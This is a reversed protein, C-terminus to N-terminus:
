AAGKNGGVFAKVAAAIKRGSLGYLDILEEPKGSHPLETVAVKKVRTGGSEAFVELVADGIGGEPWHDEVVLVRNGTAAAAKRLGDADIPKVSYADIVRVHIGDAKLLDHAKLSEHLTIGAAVITCVDGDSQRLTKSGGIPFTDTASYLVATAARTSRLYGVGHLDSLERVLAETAYPDAPYVVTSGHVARFMALDELGMQSAGDEGISVGAHSGCVKLNASSLAAMRIQDYARTLFAAFTAAWPVAGIAGAGAAMGVMAQEAIYSQVFRSPHAKEFQDTYTSNKVDGDFVMVGPHSDGLRKLADGFAKRTAITKDAPYSPAAADKRGQESEPTHRPKGAPVAITGTVGDDGPGLEALAKEAQAADMPKGHWNDHDAMFSVGAGKKTKALIALPKKRGSQGAYSIAEVCAALDQGDIQKTEWGFVEFQAAYRDLDWGLRTAVSQELRNVDVLVTLNGLNHQAAVPAAEWNSGEALEGDGCLVWVRADTKAVDRLYAAMGVANVLGQGLSGTAVDIWPIRPTPHGEYRSELTRLSMLDADSIVGGAAWAAYLVPAAHGKSLVFRDNDLRKPDSFDYRLQTFFLAGMLEAASISSSPHGSGAHTTCRISDRRIRRVLARLQDLDKSADKPASTTSM